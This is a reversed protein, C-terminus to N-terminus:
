SSSPLTLWTYSALLESIESAQSVVELELGTLVGVGPEEGIPPPFLVPFLVLPGPPTSALEIAFSVESALTSVDFPLLCM